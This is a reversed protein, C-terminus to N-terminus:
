ISINVLIALYYFVLTFANWPLSFLYFSSIFLTCFFLFSFLSFLFVTLVFWILVEIFLDIGM